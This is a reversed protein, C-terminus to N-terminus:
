KYEEPIIRLVEEDSVRDMHSKFSRGNISEAYVWVMKANLKRDNFSAVEGGRDSLYDELWDSLMQIEKDETLEPIIIDVSANYHDFDDVNVQELETIIFNLSFPIMEENEGEASCHLVGGLKTQVIAQLYPYKKTAGLLKNIGGFLKAIDLIPRGSDILKIIKESINSM